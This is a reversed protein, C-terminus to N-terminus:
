SHQRMEAEEEILTLKGVLSQVFMVIWCEEEDNFKVVKKAM